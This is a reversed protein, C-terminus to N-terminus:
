IYLATVFLYMESLKLVTRRPKDFDTFMGTVMFFFPVAIRALIRTLFFDADPATTELPATHIAIVLVAAIVRFIDLSGSKETNSM